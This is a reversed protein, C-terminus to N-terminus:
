FVLVLVKWSTTYTLGNVCHTALQGLLKILLPYLQPLYLYEMFVMM